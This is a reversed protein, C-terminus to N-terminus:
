SSRRAQPRIEKYAATGTVLFATVDQTMTAGLNKTM